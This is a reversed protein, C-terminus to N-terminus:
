SRVLAECVTLAFPPVLVKLKVSKGEDVAPVYLRTWVMTLLQALVSLQPHPTATVIV